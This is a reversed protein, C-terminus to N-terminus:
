SNKITKKTKGNHLVNSCEQLFFYLIKNKCFTIFFGSMNLTIYKDNNNRKM